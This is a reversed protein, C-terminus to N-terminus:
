VPRLGDPKSLPDLMHTNSVRLAFICFERMMIATQKPTTLFVM